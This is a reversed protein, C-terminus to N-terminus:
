QVGDQTLTVEYGSISVPGTFQFEFKHWVASWLVDYWNYLYPVTLNQIFTSADTESYSYRIQSSAPSTLFRPKVLSCTSFVNNDGHDGSTFGSATPTGSYTYAKHDSGFAALIAAGALWVPSDFSVDSPLDAITPYLTDLGDITVGPAIYEAAAEIAGDMRGWQGTKINLVICASPVGNSSKSPFWWFIRKNIRDFASIIRYSYADDLTDFFWKRLPSELPTPRSGDFTYFDDPGIFYHATGTDVVAENCPTGARGPVAQWDWVNPAGVYQGVYMSTTKYAVM